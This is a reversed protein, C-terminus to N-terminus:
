IANAKHGFDTCCELRRWFTFIVYTGHYTSAHILIPSSEHRCWECNVIVNAKTIRWVKTWCNRIALVVDLAFCVLRIIHPQYRYCKDFLAFTLSRSLSYSQLGHLAYIGGEVVVHCCCFCCRRELLICILINWGLVPASTSNDFRNDICRPVTSMMPDLNLVM